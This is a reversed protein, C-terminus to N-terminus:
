SSAMQKECGSLDRQLIQDGVKEDLRSNGSGGAEAALRWHSSSCQDSVWWHTWAPSAVPDSQPAAARLSISLLEDRSEECESQLPWWRLRETLFGSYRRYSHYIGREM